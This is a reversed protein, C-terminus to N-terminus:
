FQEWKFMQAISTGIQPFVIEGPNGQLQPGVVALGHSVNARAFYLVFLSMTSSILQAFYVSQVCMRCSAYLSPTCVHLIGIYMFLLHYIYVFVIIILAYVYWGVIHFVKDYCRCWSNPDMETCVLSTFFSTRCTWTQFKRTFLHFTYVTYMCFWFCM